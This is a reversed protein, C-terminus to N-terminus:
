EVKKVIFIRDLYLYKVIDNAPPSIWAMQANSNESDIYGIKISKYQNNKFQKINFSSDTQSPYIGYFLAEKTNKDISSINQQLEIKVNAYIEWKGKPFNVIGLQFGWDGKDGNMRVSVGDSAKSDEVVESCCLNLLYEQYDFWDINEKLNKVEKPITPTKRHLDIFDHLNDVEIGEAFSVIKPNNNLFKHFRDKIIKLDKQDGGKLLRIYDIGSYVEILHSAYISSADVKKSANKLIEDLKKINNKNLFKANIPTKFSLKEGSEKIFNHLTKIYLQIDESAEKYYFDCFIRILKDIDQDPNWLLKSFVWVRLNAFEGGQSSYSGQLFLGNLNKIKSLTKIDKDLAYLDPFPLMYGGFNTIYHWLFINNTIETWSKLQKLFNINTSSNLPQSFDAEIPSFFIGLNKPFKTSEKPAQKSWLYAQSLFNTRPYKSAIFKTYQSFTQSPFEGNKLKKTCFSSRDEHQLLIYNKSNQNITKLKDKIKKFASQQAKTNAFDFQGSCSYKPDILQSSSLNKINIGNTFIDDKKTTLARHGLHGNLKSKTAYINDDAEDIFIERYSFAPEEIDIINSSLKKSSFRPIYEYKPSLFKCGLYNELFHYVGYLLGHSNKASIIISNQNSQILFSETKRNKLLGNPNIILSINSYRHFIKKLIKPKHNLIQTLYLSLEEVPTTNNINKDDYIIVTKSSLQFANLPMLTFFFIITFIFKILNTEKTYKLM